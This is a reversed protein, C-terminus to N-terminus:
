KIFYYTIKLVFQSGLTARKKDPCQAMTENKRINCGCLLVFVQIYQNTNMLKKLLLYIM